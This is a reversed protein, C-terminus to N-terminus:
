WNRNNQTATRRLRYYIIAGGTIDSLNDYISYSAKTSDYAYNAVGKVNTAFSPDTSRQLEFNDGKIFGSGGTPVPVNWSVQISDRGDYQVNLSSPWIYPPVTVPTTSSYSLYGGQGTAKTNFTYAQSSNSMGVDMSGTANQNTNDTVTNGTNNNIWHTITYNGATGILGNSGGSGYTYNITMNGVNASTAFSFTPNPIGFSASASGSWSQNKQDAKSGDSGDFYGTVYEASSFNLTQGLHSQDVYWRLYLVSTQGGYGDNIVQNGSGSSLMASQGNNVMVTGYGSMIQVNITHTNDGNHSPDAASFIAITNNNFSLGGSTVAQTATYASCCGRDVDEIPIGFQVYAGYQDVGTGQINPNNVHQAMAPLSGIYFIMLLFFLTKRVVPSLYPNKM